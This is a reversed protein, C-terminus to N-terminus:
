RICFAPAVGNATSANGFSSSGESDISVFSAESSGPSGLWYSSSGSSGNKERSETDTYYELWAQTGMTESSSGTGGMEGATPLWLLDQLSAGGVHRLPAWMLDKPV